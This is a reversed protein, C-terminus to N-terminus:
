MTRNPPPHHLLLQESKISYMFIWLLGPVWQCETYVFTETGSQSFKIRLSTNEKHLHPHVPNHGPNKQTCSTLVHLDFGNESILVLALVAEHFTLKYWLWWSLKRILSSTLTVRGPLRSVKPRVFWKLVASSSIWGLVVRGAEEPKQCSWQKM